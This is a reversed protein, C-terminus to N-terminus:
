EGDGDWAVRYDRLVKAARTRGPEGIQGLNLLTRLTDEMMGAALLVAQLSDEYDRHLPAFPAARKRVM